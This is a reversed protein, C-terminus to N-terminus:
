DVYVNFMPGRGGTGPKETVRGSFKTGKFKEFDPDFTFPMGAARELHLLTSLNIRIQTVIKDYADILPQEQQIQESSLFTAALETISAKLNSTADLNPKAGFEVWTEKNFALAVAEATLWEPRFTVNLFQTGDPVEPELMYAKVADSLNSGNASAKVAAEAQEKSISIAKVLLGHRTSGDDQLKAGQYQIIELGPAKSTGYKGAPIRKYETM